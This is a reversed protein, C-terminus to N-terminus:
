PDIRGCHRCRRGGRVFVKMSGMAAPATVMTLASPIQPWVALQGGDPGHCWVWDGRRLREIPVAVIEDRASAHRVIM